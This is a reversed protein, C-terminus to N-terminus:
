AFGIFTKALGYHLCPMGIGCRSLRHIGTGWWRLFTRLGVRNFLLGEQLRTPFDPNAHAAIGFSFIDEARNEIRVKSAAISKDKDGCEPNVM